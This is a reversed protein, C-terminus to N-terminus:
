DLLRLTLGATDVQAPLVQLGQAKLARLVARRAGPPTLAVVCGGGGAGCVKAAAAGSALATAVAADVRPTSVGKALRRRWRWEERLWRAAETWDPGAALAARLGLAAEKVARLAARTRPRGEVCARLVRWNPEASDHPEGVYAVVLRRGLDTALSGDTDLPEVRDGAVDFWLANVGGALAAYYDQRGTPVGIVQAELDAAVRVLRDRVPPEGCLAALAACLAVLLASSAGLGSGRPAQNATLLECGGPPCWYRAARAALALPGHLPLDDYGDAELATGTDLSRIVIRGDDRSRAEVRSAISVAANITLGGDLLLYLPYLDLTGGALDIRNPATAVVRM